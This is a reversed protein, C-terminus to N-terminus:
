VGKFLINGSDDSEWYTDPLNYSAGADFLWIATGINATAKLSNDASDTFNGASIEARLAAMMDFSWAGYHRNVITSPYVTSTGSIKEWISGDM